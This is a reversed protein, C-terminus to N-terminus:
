YGNAPRKLVEEFARTVQEWSFRSAVLEAGGAALRAREAPNELLELCAAAFSEPTCALRINSPDEVSLGEAGIPTSVVPVHAAMSEYIKLRTGGGIRLPVISVQAGWLYPRVDPVTGTVTILRDAAALAQIAPPPTRGVIALTTEPRRRRILPLIERVFYRIGDMNPLWDMAGVFILDAAPPPTPPPAFRETDVGTPVHSIRTIGFLRRMTAADEASVAIVHGAQQCVHREFAFMRAAQLRFYFKRLPDPASSQHRRWIMTEVNHQFVIWGGLDPINAAPAAFDCVLRDFAGTRALDAITATMSASRYRSVAVPLPSFLGAALQAAFAPSRHSPVHHALPYARTCYEPSRALGEPFAPNDYAVYHIEHRQHLRRLMELTRIQGGRHAPHLFDSKVWLIKM